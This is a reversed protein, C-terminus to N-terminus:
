LKKPTTCLAWIYHAMKDYGTHVVEDNMSFMFVNHFYKNMLNKLEKTEKINVHGYSSWKSAYKESYKNPTGLIMIGTESLSNYLNDLFVKEEEKYIHEIVDILYIADVTKKYEEKRFDHYEYKINDFLNNKNNEILLKENIDTAIVEKVNQAVIPTGFGDSCGVELVTNAENLMKSCFKYRSTMFSLAIPDHIYRDTTDWGINIKKNNEVQNEIDLWLKKSDNM